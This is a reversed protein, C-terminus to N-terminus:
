EGSGLEEREKKYVDYDVNSRQICHRYEAASLQRCKSQSSSQFGDYWARNTCGPAVIVITLISSLFRITIKERKPM